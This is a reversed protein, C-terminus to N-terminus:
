GNGHKGDHHALRVTTGVPPVFDPRHVFTGELTHRTLRRRHFRISEELLLQGDPSTITLDVHGRLWYARQRVRAVKGTIMAGSEDRLVRAHTVKIPETESVVLDVAGTDALNTRTSACGTSILLAFTLTAPLALNSNM